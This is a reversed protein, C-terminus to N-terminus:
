KPRRFGDHQLFGAMADQCYQSSARGDLGYPYYRSPIRIDKRYGEGHVAELRVGDGGKLM